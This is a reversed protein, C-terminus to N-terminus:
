NNLIINHFESHSIEISFVIPTINKDEYYYKNTITNIKSM